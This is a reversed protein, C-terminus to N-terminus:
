WRSDTYGYVYLLAEIENWNAAIGIQYLRTRAPTSGTAYVLVDPFRRTFELVTAAVTALIRNKDQNNTISRDDVKKEIEDWDGFGLNFCTIGGANRPTSRVIKKIRGKPGESFFEYDLYSENTKYQYADLNVSCNLPKLFKGRPFFEVIVLWPTARWFIQLYM